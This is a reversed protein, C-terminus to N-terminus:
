GPAIGLPTLDGHHKAVKDARGSQRFLQVGLIKASQHLGKLFGRAVHDATIVPMHRLIEAIPQHDIEAPRLRM